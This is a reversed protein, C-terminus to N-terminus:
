HASATKSSKLSHATSQKMSAFSCLSGAVILGILLTTKKLMGSVTAADGAKSAVLGNKAKAVVLGWIILSASSFAQQMSDDGKSSRLRHSQQQSSYSLTMYILAGLGM